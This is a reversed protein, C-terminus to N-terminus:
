ARARPLGQIRVHRTAQVAAAERISSSLGREELRLHSPQHRFQVHGAIIDAPVRHPEAPNHLAADARVGSGRVADLM